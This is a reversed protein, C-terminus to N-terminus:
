SVLNADSLSKVLQGRVTHTRCTLGEGLRATEIGLLNAVSNLEEKGVVEIDYCEDGCGPVFEVNGLLM